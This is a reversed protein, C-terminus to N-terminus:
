SRPWRWSASRRWGPGLAALDAHAGRHGPLAAGALGHRAHQRRDRGPDALGQQPLVAVALGLRRWAGPLLRLVPALRGLRLGHLAPQGRAVRRRRLGHHGPVAAMAGYALHAPVVGGVFMLPYFKTAIALGLLM